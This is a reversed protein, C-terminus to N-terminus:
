EHLKRSEELIKKFINRKYETDLKELIEKEREPFIMPLGRKRKIKRILKVLQEREKLFEALKKDIKDIKKRIKELEDM